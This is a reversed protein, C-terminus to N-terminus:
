RAERCVLCAPIDLDDAIRSGYPSLEDCLRMVKVPRPGGAGRAAGSLQTRGLTSEGEVARDRQGDATFCCNQYCHSNLSTSDGLQDLRSCVFVHHDLAYGAELLDSLPDVDRVGAWEPAAVVEAAVSFASPFEKAARPM